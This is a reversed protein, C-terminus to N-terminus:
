PLGLGARERELERELEREREGEIAGLAERLEDPSPTGPPPVDLVDRYLSLRQAYQQSEAALQRFRLAPRGYRNVRPM